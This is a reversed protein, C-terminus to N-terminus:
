SEGSAVPYHIAVTTLEPLCAFEAEDNNLTNYIRKDWARDSTASNFSECIVRVM